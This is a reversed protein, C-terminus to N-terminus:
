ECAKRLRAAWGHMQPDTVGHYEDHSAQYIEAAVELAEARLAAAAHALESNKISLREAIQDQTAREREWAVIAARLFTKDIVVVGSPVDGHRLPLEHALDRLGDLPDDSM